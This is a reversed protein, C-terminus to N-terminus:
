RAATVKERVSELFERDKPHSLLSLAEEYSVWRAETVEGDEPKLEMENTRFLFITRRRLGLEKVESVGDKAFSYREYSGLEGLLELDRVGTEEYIERKAADLESEGEEVGGKPLSWTNGHQEVLLIEGKGNQVVGGASARPM